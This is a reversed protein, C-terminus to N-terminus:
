ERLAAIKEKLKDFYDSEVVEAVKKDRQAQDILIELHHVREETKALKDRTSTLASLTQQLGDFLRANDLVLAANDLLIQTTESQSPDLSKGAPFILSALGITSSRAKLPFNEIIGIQPPKLVRESVVVPDQCAKSKSLSSKERMSDIAHQVEGEDFGAKNFVWLRESSNEDLLFVALTGFDVAQGLIDAISAVTENLDAISMSLNGVRRRLTMQFLMKDMLNGLRVYVAEESVSNPEIDVGTKPVKGELFKNIVGILSCFAEDDEDFTKTLYADAGTSLGWLEDMKRDRSTLMIVPTDGLQEDTKLLRCVQYGNLRPMDIDLLILDPQVSLAKQVANVGDKAQVTTFGQEELMYSLIDRITSSDEAILIKYKHM